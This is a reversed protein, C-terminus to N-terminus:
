AERVRSIEPLLASDTGTLGLGAFAVGGAAAEGVLQELGKQSSCLGQDVVVASPAPAPAQGATALVLCAFTWCCLAASLYM